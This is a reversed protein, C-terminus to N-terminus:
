RWGPRSSRLKIGPGECYFSVLLEWSNDKKNKLKTSGMNAQVAIYLQFYGETSKEQMWTGVGAHSVERVYRITNLDDGGM